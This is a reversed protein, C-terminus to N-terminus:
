FLEGIREAGAAVFHIEAHQRGRSALAMPQGLGLGAHLYRSRLQLAPQLPQTPPRLLFSSAHRATLPRPPRREPSRRRTVLLRFISLIRYHLLWNLCAHASLFTSFVVSAFHTPDKPLFRSSM